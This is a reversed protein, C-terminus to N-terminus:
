VNILLIIYCMCGASGRMNAYMVLSSDADPTRHPFYGVYKFKEIYEKGTLVITEKCFIELLQNHTANNYAVETFHEPM